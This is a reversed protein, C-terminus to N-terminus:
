SSVKRVYATIDRDKFYDYRYMLELMEQKDYYASTDLLFKVVNDSLYDRDDAGDAGEDLIRDLDYIFHDGEDSLYLFRKVDAYDFTQWTGDLQVQVTEIKDGEESKVFRIQGDESEITNDDETYSKTNLFVRDGDTYIDDSFLGSERSVFVSEDKAFLSIGQYLNLNYEYGLLDLLTPLIDFSNCSKTIKRGGEDTVSSSLSYNIDYYFEGNYASEAKGGSFEQVDNTYEVGDYLDTEVQLSMCNGSWIFFPINYNKLNWYESEPIGKLTYSQQTYYANHDAYFVFTTNELEGQQQLSHILRNIGVDLDMMGAQYRKYRLYASKNESKEVAVAFQDDVYTQPYDDIREYYMELDKVVYQDSLKNKESQSLDATYDGYRTLDDYNGHSILTMMMTFFASDGADKETFEAFYQSLVESDRDFDYFGDKNYHGKLRDMTDLFHGHEFGYTGGDGYTDERNYYSGENAHFYNTTYGSDKLINPLAFAFDHELLGDPNSITPAISNDIDSPYSGLVSMAESHNTKDRAHYDTMAWGETALAYLTPTYDKNIAYWEGSEIVILVVNQGEFKGTMLNENGEYPELSSSWAGESFYDDLTEMGRQRDAEKEEESVSSAVSVFNVINKYYFGFTGFKKYAKATLFQTDYLNADDKYIYLEDDVSATAFSDLAVYYLGSSFGSALCFICVLLVVAQLRFSQKARVKRLKFLVFGELVFVIILEVIFLYNLFENTFVGGVEKALNLMSLSFVMNSMGYLSENVISLLIQVVLMLCILIAQATFNPVIFIVAAVFLLIALDLWFYTPFIGIGMTNFTIFEIVIAAIIYSGVYLSKKLLLSKM